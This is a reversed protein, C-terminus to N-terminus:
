YKKTEKLRGSCQQCVCKGNVHSVKNNSTGSAGCKDCYEDKECDDEKLDREDSVGPGKRKNNGIPEGFRELLVNYIHLSAEDLNQKKM